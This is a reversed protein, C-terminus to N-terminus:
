NDKILRVALGRKNNSDFSSIDAVDWTYFNRSTSADFPTSSWMTSFGDPGNGWFNGAVDRLGGPLASFGSSNTGINLPGWLTIDTSKMKGGAVSAGGLYNILSTWETETPVHWGQPALGRPDNVAYWNYLKGYISGNNPDNDYYCWAGTTLNEWAASNTVQPIPDGNRYTTVDLNKVTWIQTGIKVYDLTVAVPKIFGIPIVQAKVSSGLITTLIIVIIKKMSFIKFQLQLIHQEMM